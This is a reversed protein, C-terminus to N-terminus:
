KPSLLENAFNNLLKCFDLITKVRDNDVLGLVEGGGPDGEELSQQRVGSV